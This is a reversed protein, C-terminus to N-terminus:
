KTERAAILTPDRLGKANGLAGNARELQLRISAVNREAVEILFSKAEEFTPFYNSFESRKAQRRAKKEGAHLVTVTKETESLVVVTNIRGYSASFWVVGDSAGM